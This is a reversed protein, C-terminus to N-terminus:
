DIFRLMLREAQDVSDVARCFDDVFRTEDHKNWDSGSLAAVTLWAYHDVDGKDCGDDDDTNAREARGESRGQLPLGERLERVRELKEIAEDLESTGVEVKIQKKLDAAVCTDPEANSAIRECLKDAFDKPDSAADDEQGEERKRRQVFEVLTEGGVTPVVADPARGRRVINSLTGAVHDLLDAPCGSVMASVGFGLNINIGSDGEVEISKVSEADIIKGNGLNVMTSM